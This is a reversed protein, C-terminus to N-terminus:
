TPGRLPALAEIMEPVNESILTDLRKSVAAKLDPVSLEEYKKASIWSEGHLRVRSGMRVRRGVEWAPTVCFMKHPSSVCFYLHSGALSASAEAEGCEVPDVM